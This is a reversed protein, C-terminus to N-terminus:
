LCHATTIPATILAACSASPSSPGFRKGVRGSPTASCLSSCWRPNRSWPPPSRTHSDHTLTPTHTRPHTPTHPQAAPTLSLPFSSIGAVARTAPAANPSAVRTSAFAKFLTGNICLVYLAARPSHDRPPRVSFITYYVSQFLAYPVPTSQTPGHSCAANMVTPASTPFSTTFHSRRSDALCACALCDYLSPLSLRHAPSRTCTKPSTPSRHTRRHTRVVTTASQLFSSYPSFLSRRHGFSFLLSPSSFLSPLRVVVPCHRLVTDTPQRSGRALLDCLTGFPFTSHSPPRPFAQPKAPGLQTRHAYWPQSASM